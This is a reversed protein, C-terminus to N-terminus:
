AAIQRVAHNQLYLAAQERGMYRGLTREPVETLNVVIMGDLADNFNRDVNFCVLRGNLNLYQRILVPIGKDGELRYILKSILQEDELQRLMGTTWFINRPHKQRRTPKIQQARNKDYYHIQLFQTLLSRSVASYDNSISVPGFLTTYHPHRAVFAAIGKWLLLLPSLSRQYEARVFSRGMEISHGLSLLFQRRYNFLSRSYLGKVGKAALIRDTLGLRYAGVIVQQERDWIFLHQYYDDYQDLDCATGTGEGVSRFTLERLRGIEPLVHPLESAPACYVDFQDTTLMNCAASLKSIDQLLLRNEIAPMVPQAHTAQQDQAKGPNDARRALLYTNLRLYQTIAEDTALPRIEANGILDGIHLRVSKNRKNLLERALLLTRLRPHLIGAAHFLISNQGEIYVPMCAAGTKRMMMGIIRHWERDTINQQRLHWASVEGAPFVLLLGQNNLHSVAKKIGHINTNGGQRNGFVDVGIFLDALEPVRQLFENALIKVDRRRQLLLDALAMGEIAGFPHNAVVIVAGQQPISDLSGSAMHPTVNLTDLSYRLFSSTNLNRERQQYYRDLAKLGLMHEAVSSIWKFKDSPTIKFPTDSQM